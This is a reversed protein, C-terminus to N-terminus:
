VQLTKPNAPYAAAKQESALRGVSQATGVGRWRFAVAKEMFHMM